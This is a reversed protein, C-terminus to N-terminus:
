SKESECSVTKVHNGVYHGYGHKNVISDFEDKSITKLSFEEPIEIMDILLFEEGMLRQDFSEKMLDFLKDNEKQNLSNKLRDLQEKEATFVSTLNSHWNKLIQINEEECSSVDLWYTHELLLNAGSLSKYCITVKLKPLDLTSYGRLATMLKYPRDGTFMVDFTESVNNAALTNIRNSTAGLVLEKGNETVILEASIDIFLAPHSSNNHIKFFYFYRSLYSYEDTPPTYYFRPREINFESFSIELIPQERLQQEQQMQKLQMKMVDIQSSTTYVYMATLIAVFFSSLASITDVLNFDSKFLSYVLCGVFSLLLVIIILVTIKNLGKSKM